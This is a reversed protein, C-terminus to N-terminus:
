TCPSTSRRAVAPSLEVSALWERRDGTLLYPRAPQGHHYHVAQIRQQWARGDDMLTKRLRVVSRLEQIQEPPIWSEARRGALPFQHRCPCGTRGDGHAAVGVGPVLTPPFTFVGANRTEMRPVRRIRCFAIPYTM